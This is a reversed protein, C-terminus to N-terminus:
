QFLGSTMVLSDAFAQMEDKSQIMHTHEIIRAQQPEPLGYFYDKAAKNKTLAIDLFAAQAQELPKRPCDCVGTLAIPMDPAYKKNSDVDM